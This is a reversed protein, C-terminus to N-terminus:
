CHVVRYILFLINCCQLQLAGLFSQLNRCSIASHTIMVHLMNTHLVKYILYTPKETM